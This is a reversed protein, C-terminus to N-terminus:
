FLSNKGITLYCLVGNGGVVFVHVLPAMDSDNIPM